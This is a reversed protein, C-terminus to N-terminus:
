QFCQLIIISCTSNSMEVVVGRGSFRVGRLRSSKRAAEASTPRNSEVLEIFIKFLGLQFKARRRGYSSTTVGEIIEGLTKVAVMGFGPPKPLVFLTGTLGTSEYDQAEDGALGKPLHRGILRRAPTALGSYATPRQPLPSGAAPCRVVGYPLGADVIFLVLPRIASWGNGIRGFWEFVARKNFNAGSTTIKFYNGIPLKQKSGRGAAAQGGEAETVRPELERGRDPTPRLIPRHQRRYQAPLAESGVHCRVRDRQPRWSKCNRYPCYRSRIMGSSCVITEM